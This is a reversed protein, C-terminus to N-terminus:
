HMYLHLTGLWARRCMKTMKRADKECNCNKQLYRCNWHLKSYQNQESPRKNSMWEQTGEKTIRTREQRTGKTRRKSFAVCLPQEKRGSSTTTKLLQAPLSLEPTFWKAGGIYSNGRLTILPFFFFSLSLSLSHTHACILTPFTPTTDILLSALLTKQEAFNWWPYSTRRATDIENIRKGPNCGQM